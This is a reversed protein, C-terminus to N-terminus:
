PATVGFLSFPDRKGGAAVQLKVTKELEKIAAVIAKDGGTLDAAASKMGFRVSSLSSVNGSTTSANAATMKIQEDILKKADKDQRHRAEVISKHERELAIEKQKKKFEEAAVKNHKEARRDYAEESEATLVAISEMRDRILKLLGANDLLGATSKTVNEAISTWSEKIVKGDESASLVAAGFRRVMQIGAQISGVGFALTVANKLTAFSGIASKVGEKVNNRARLEVELTEATTAM